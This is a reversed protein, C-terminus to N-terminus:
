RTRFCADGSALSKSDDVTRMPNGHFSYRFGHVCSIKPHLRTRSKYPIWSIKYRRRLQFANFGDFRLETHNEDDERERERESESQGRENVTAKDITM